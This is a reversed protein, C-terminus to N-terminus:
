TKFQWSSMSRQHCSGVMIGKLRWSGLQAGLYVNPPEIKDDKLKFQGQLSKLISISELSVSLNDDVYCMVYEYYEASDPKVALCIWVDPDAKISVFSIDYLTKALHAWFTAGSSKLGYLAKKIIM